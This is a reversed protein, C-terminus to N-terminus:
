SSIVVPEPSSSSLLVVSAIDDVVDTTSVEVGGVGVEVGCKISFEVITSFEVEDLLELIVEVVVIEELVEVVTEVVEVVVVVVMEAIVVVVVVVVEVFVVVVIEVGALELMVSVVGSTSVAFVVETSVVM